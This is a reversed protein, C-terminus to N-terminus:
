APQPKVEHIPKKYWNKGEPKALIFDAVLKMEEKSLPQYLTAGEAACIDNAQQFIKTEDNYVNGIKM